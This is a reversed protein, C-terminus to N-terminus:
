GIPATRLAARRQEEELCEEEAFVGGRRFVVSGEPLEGLDAFVSEDEGFDVEGGGGVGSGDSGMQSCGLHGGDMQMTESLIGQEAVDSFWCVGNGAFVDDDLEFKDPAEGSEPEPHPKKAEERQPKTEDAQGPTRGAAPLPHNHECAYTILLMTPDLRSREVQKRAPCGKSSSCRYYGRCPVIKGRIPIVLCKFVPFYLQFDFFVLVGMEGNMLIGLSFRGSELVTNKNNRPVEPTYANRPYPSGKIPKQGYKRWAWSDSPPTTEGKQKSGEIDSIPVTIVKKQVAKKSRKPSSDHVSHNGSFAASKGTSPQLMRQVSVPNDESEVSNFADM